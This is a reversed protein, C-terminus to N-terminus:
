RQAGKSKKKAAEDDDDDEPEDEDPEHQPKPPEQSPDRPIPQPKPPEVGPEGPQGGAQVPIQALSEPDSGLPVAVQRAVMGDAIHAPVSYFEGPKYEMMTMNDPCAHYPQAATIKVVRTPTTRRQFQVALM